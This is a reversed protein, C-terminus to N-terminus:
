NLLWQYLSEEMLPDMTKRGGGEKRTPGLAIWRKLNKIPINMQASV